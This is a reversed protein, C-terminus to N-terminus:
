SRHEASKLTAAASDASSTRIDRYTLVIVGLVHAVEGALLGLLGGAAGWPGLAFYSVSLGLVACVFTL